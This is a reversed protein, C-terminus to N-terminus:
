LGVIAIKAKSAAAFFAPADIILVHGAELALASMGAKRMVAITRPGVAPLDFRLDQGPKVVKVVVAGRSLKGARALCADTGEIAEIAIPIQDKVVVTQGIDVAGIQKGLEFGFHMDRMEEETPARTSLVGTRAMAEQLFATSAVVELGESELEQAVARLITDDKKSLLRKAVALARADPRVPRFFRLKRVGGALAVQKSPYSKLVDILAQLKAVEVFSVKDAEKKIEPLTEGHLAVAHVEIGRAHAARVFMLPFEGNGAILSLSTM